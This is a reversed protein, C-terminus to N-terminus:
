SSRVRAEDGSVNLTRQFRWRTHPSGRERGSICSSNRRRNSERRHEAPARYRYRSIQPIRCPAERVEDRGCSFSLSKRPIIRSLCSFAPKSNSWALWNVTVDVGAKTATTISIISTLEIVATTTRGGVTTLRETLHIVATTTTTAVRTIGM